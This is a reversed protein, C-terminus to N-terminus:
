NPCEDQGCLGILHGFCRRQNCRVNDPCDAQSKCLRSEGNTCNNQCRSRAQDGGSGSSTVGLCCQQTPNPCDSPEDCAFRQGRCSGLASMCGADGEVRCCVQAPTTCQTEGCTVVNPNSFGADDRIAADMALADSGADTPPNTTGGSTGGSTGSGSTGGSTNSGGSTGGTSGSTGGSTSPAGSDNNAATINASDSGSCGGV